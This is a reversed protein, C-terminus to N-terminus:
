KKNREEDLLCRHLQLLLMMSSHKARRLQDFQFGYRQEYALVGMRSDFMSSAPVVPLTVREHKSVNHKPLPYSKVLVPNTRKHHSIKKISRSFYAFLSGKADADKYCSLCLYKKAAKKGASPLTSEFLWCKGGSAGGTLVKNCHHCTPNLHWILFQDAMPSIRTKLNSMLWAEREEFTQRHDPILALREKEAMQRAAIEEMRIKYKLDNQRRTLVNSINDNMMQFRVCNYRKIPAIPEVNVDTGRLLEAHSLTGDSKGDNEGLGNIGAISGGLGGVGVGHTRASANRVFSKLSSLPGDAPLVAALTTPYEQELARWAERRKASTLGEPYPL